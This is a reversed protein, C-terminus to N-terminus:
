PKIGTADITYTGDARLNIIVWPNVGKTGIDAPCSFESLNFATRTGNPAKTVSEEISGVWSCVPDLVAHTVTPDVRTIESGEACWSVQYTYSWAQEVGLQVVETSWCQDEAAGATAGTAFPLATLFGATATALAALRRM